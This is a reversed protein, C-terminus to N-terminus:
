AYLTTYPCRSGAYEQCNPQRNEHLSLESEEVVLRVVEINPTGSHAKGPTVAGHMENTDCLSTERSKDM